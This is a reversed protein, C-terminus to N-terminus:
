EVEKACFEYASQWTSVTLLCREWVLKRDLNVRLLDRLSGSKPKPWKKACMVAPPTAPCVTLKTEIVSQKFTGCSSVLCFIVTACFLRCSVM